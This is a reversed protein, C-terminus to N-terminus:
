EDQTGYYLITSIISKLKQRNTRIEKHLGSNVQEIVSIKKGNMIDMFDKAKSM